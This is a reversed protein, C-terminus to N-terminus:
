YKNSQYQNGITSAILPMEDGGEVSVMARFSVHSDMVDYKLSTICCKHDVYTPGLIYYSRDMNHLKSKISFVDM